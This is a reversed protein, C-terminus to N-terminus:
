PTETPTSNATSTSTPTMTPTSTFTPTYTPTATIFAIDFGFFDYVCGGSSGPGTCVQIDVTFDTIGTPDFPALAYGTKYREIKSRTLACELDDHSFQNSSFRSIETRGPASFILIRYSRLDVRGFNYVRIVLTEQGDCTIVEELYLRARPLPPATATRTPTKTPPIPKDPVENTNGEVTAYGGWVWCTGDADPNEILWYDLGEAQGIINATEGKLIYGLWDYHNSPGSRCNTDGAMIVRASPTKTPTLTITTTPTPSLTSTPPPAETPVYVPTITQTITPSSTVTPIAAETQRLLDRATAEIAQMDLDVQINQEMGCSALIFIIFLYAIAALYFKRM